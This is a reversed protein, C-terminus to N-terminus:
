NWGRMRYYLSAAVELLAATTKSLAEATPTWSQLRYPAPGPLSTFGVPFPKVDFGVAHFAAARPMHLATTVLLIRDIDLAALADRTALANERTNRSTSELM